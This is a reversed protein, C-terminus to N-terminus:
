VAFYYRLIALALWIILGLSMVVGIQRLVLFQRPYMMGIVHLVRAILLVAGAWFVRSPSLDLSELIWMLFLTLPVYEVFNGQIRIAVNLEKLGGDGLSIREKFRFRIVNICLMVFMLAMAAAFLPTILTMSNLGTSLYSSLM